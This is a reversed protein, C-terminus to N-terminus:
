ALVMVGRIDKLLHHRLQGKILGITDETGATFFAFTSADWKETCKKGGYELYFPMLFFAKNEM